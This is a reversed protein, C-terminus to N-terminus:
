TYIHSRLAVVPDFDSITLTIHVDLNLTATILDAWTKGIAKAGESRLPTKPDFILFGAIIEHRANMFETEFAPFAESATILQAGLGTSESSVSAGVSNEISM